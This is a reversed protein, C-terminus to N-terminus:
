VKKSKIWNDKKIYFMNMSPFHYDLVLDPNLVAIIFNNNIIKVEENKIINDDLPFSFKTSYNVINELCFDISENGCLMKYNIIKFKDDKENDNINNKYSFSPICIKKFSKIPKDSDKILIKKLIKNFLLKIDISNNNLEYFIFSINEIESKIFYILDNKDEDNISFAEIDLDNMYIVNYEYSNLDIKVISSFNTNIINFNLCIKNTNDIQDNNNLIEIFNNLLEISFNDQNLYDKEFDIKNTILINNYESLIRVLKKLKLGKLQNKILEIDNNDNDLLFYKNLLNIIFFLKSHEGISIDNLGNDQYYKLLINNNIFIACNNSNNLDLNNNNFMSNEKNTIINNPIYHYKIKRKEGDNELRVWKFKAKSKIETELEEDLIFKGEKDKIYYLNIELSNYIIEEKKCFEILELLIQSIQVDKTCSISTIMLIKKNYNMLSDINQNYSITCIGKVQSNKKFIIIKPYIGVNSYYLINNNINFAQIIKEPISKLYNEYFSQLSTNKTPIYSEARIIDTSNNEIILDHIKIPSSNFDNSNDIISENDKSNNINNNYLNNGHSITNKETNYNIKSNNISGNKEHSNNFPSLSKSNQTKSNSNNELISNIINEQDNFLLSNINSHNYNFSYKYIKELLLIYQCETIKKLTEDDISLIIYKDNHARPISPYILFPDSKSSIYFIKNLNKIRSLFKTDNKMNNLYNRNFSKMDDLIYKNRLIDLSISTMFYNYNFVVNISENRLSILLTKIEDINQENLNNYNYFKLKDIIANRKNISENLQNLNNLTMKLNNLENKFIQKKTEIQRTLTIYMEQYTRNVKLKIWLKKIKMFDADKTYESPLNNMFYNYNKNNSLFGIYKNKYNISIIPNKKLLNNKHMIMGKYSLDNNRYKNNKSYISNSITLNHNKIKFNSQSQCKKIEKLSNKKDRKKKFISKNNISLNPFKIKDKIINKNINNDENNYTHNIYKNNNYKSSNKKNNNGETKKQKNNIYINITKNPISPKKNPFIIKINQTRNYHSSNNKTNTNTVFSRSKSIANNHNNNAETNCNISIKDSKKKVNKYNNSNNNILDNIKKDYFNLSIINSNKKNNDNKNKSFKKGENKKSKDKSNKYIKPIDNNKIISNSYTVKYKNKSLSKRKSNVKSCNASIKFEKYYNNQIIDKDIFNANPSLKFKSM